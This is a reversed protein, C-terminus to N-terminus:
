KTSFVENISFVRQHLATERFTKTTVFEIYEKEESTYDVYSKFSDLKSM